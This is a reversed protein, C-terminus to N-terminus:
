YDTKRFTNRFFLFAFDTKRDLLHKPITKKNELLKNKQNQELPKKKKKFRIWSNKKAEEENEFGEIQVQPSFLIPNLPSFTLPM